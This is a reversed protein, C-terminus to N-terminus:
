FKLWKKVHEPWSDPHRLRLSALSPDGIRVDLTDDATRTGRGIRQVTNAISEEAYWERGGPLALRKRVYLSGIDARQIHPILIQHCLDGPLDIGEDMGSALLMGGIQKFRKLAQEKSRADKGHTILRKGILKRLRPQLQAALRYSVHVLVNKGCDQDKVWQAVLDPDQITKVSAGMPKSHIVVNGDPIPTGVQIVDVDGQKFLDIERQTVTASVLVNIPSRKFRDLHHDPIDLPKVHLCRKGHTYYFYYRHPAAKYCELLNHVRECLPVYQEIADRDAKKFALNVLRELKRDTCELWEIIDLEDEIDDPTNWMDKSFSAGCFELLMGPLKHVEDIITVPQIPSEAFLYSVPNWYTVEGMRMRRKSEVYPCGKCPPKDFKDQVAGCTTPYRTCKYFGKGKLTNVWPYKEHAQDVLANNPCVIHAGRYHNALAQIMLSKGSGPPAWIVFTKVGRLLGAEIRRFM